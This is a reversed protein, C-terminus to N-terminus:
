TKLNYKRLTYYNTIHSSDSGKNIVLNKGRVNDLTAKPNELMFSNTYHNISAVLIGDLYANIASYGTYNHETSYPKDGLDIKIMDCDLTIDLLTISDGTDNNSDQIYSPMEYPNIIKDLKDLLLSDFDSVKKVEDVIISGEITGINVPEIIERLQTVEEIIGVNEISGLIPATMVEFDKATSSQGFKLKGYPVSDASVYIRSVDATKIAYNLKFPIEDATNDNLRVRVKATAPAELLILYNQGSSILHNNLGNEISLDVINYNVM